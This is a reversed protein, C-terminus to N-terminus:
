LILDVFQKQINPKAMNNVYVHVTDPIDMELADLMEQRPAAFAPCKLLLHLKDETKFNCYPCGGNQIFNYKKRHANFGSLGMRMRSHSVAGNGDESVYLDYSTSGYLDSLKSKLSQLSLARRIDIRTDNWVRISAPMYSKLFYNEKSRPMQIADQNRLIYNQQDWGMSTIADKICNPM